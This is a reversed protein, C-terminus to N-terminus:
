RDRGDACLGGQSGGGPSMWYSASMGDDGATVYVTRVTAGAQIAHLLDPSIFILDDDEHAVITLIPGKAAQSTRADASARQQGAGAVFLPVLLM